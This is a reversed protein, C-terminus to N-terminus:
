RATRSAGPWSAGARGFLGELDPWWELTLPRVTLSM